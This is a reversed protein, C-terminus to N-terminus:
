SKKALAEAVRTAAKLREAATLPKQTTSSEQGASNGLTKKPSPTTRQVGKEKAPQMKKTSRLREAYQELGKEIIDAAEEATLQVPGQPDTLTEAYHAEILAWVKDEANLAVIYEYRPTGDATKEGLVWARTSADHSALTAELAQAYQNQAQAVREAYKKNSVLKELAQVDHGMEAAIQEITAGQAVYPICREVTLDNRLEEVESLAKSIGPDVKKRSVAASAALEFLNKKGFVDGLAEISALPDTEALALAATIAEVRKASKALEKKQEIIAKEKTALSAYAKHFPEEKHVEKEDKKPEKSVEEKEEKGTEPPSSLEQALNTALALREATSPTATSTNTDTM